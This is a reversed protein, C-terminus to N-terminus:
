RDDPPAHPMDPTLENAELLRIAEDAESEEMDDLPQGDTTVVWGTSIDVVEWTQNDAQRKEFRGAM